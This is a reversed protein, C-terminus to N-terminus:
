EGSGKMTKGILQVLEKVLNRRGIFLPLVLSSYITGPCPIHRALVMYRIIRLYGRLSFSEKAQMKLREYFARISYRHSASMLKEHDSLLIELAKERAPFRSSIRTFEHDQHYSVLPKRITLGPLSSRHMLKIWLDWDQFAPLEGNIRTDSLLDRETLCFSFSGAINRYLIDEPTFHERGNMHIRGDRTIIEYDCSVLCCRNEKIARIQLLLKDPHWEDDDDLFALYRGRAEDIGINRARAAGINKDQLFSRIRKDKELEKIVERTQDNCHDAIIILEWDAYSQNKISAVARLLLEPRNYTPVIISALSM